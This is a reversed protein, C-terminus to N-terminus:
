GRKNSAAIRDEGITPSRVPFSGGVRSRTMVRGARAAPSPTQKIGPAPLHRGSRMGDGSRLGTEVSASRQRM